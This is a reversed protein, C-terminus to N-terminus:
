GVRLVVARSPVTDPLNQMSTYSPTQELIGWTGDEALERIRPGLGAQWLSDKITLVFVGGPRIIRILDDFGEAGVHGTTFVGASVVAAFHNDPLPLPEGLAARHLRSYVGKKRALDLMGESIDLAEVEPYGAIAMWQGLLGTGAGADLVPGEGRPLYRTLMSLCITPHRYGLGAM